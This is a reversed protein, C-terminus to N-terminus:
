KIGRIRLGAKQMGKSRRDVRAWDSKDYYQGGGSGKIHRALDKDAGKVYRRLLAKSLEQVVQRADTM